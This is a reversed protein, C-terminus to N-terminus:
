FMILCCCASKLRVIPLHHLLFDTFAAPCFYFFTFVLSGLFRARRISSDETSYSCCCCIYFDSIMRSLKNKEKLVIAIKVTKRVKNSCLRNARRLHSFCLVGKGLVCNLDFCVGYWCVLILRPTRLGLFPFINWSPTSSLDNGGHATWTESSTLVEFRCLGWFTPGKKHFRAKFM